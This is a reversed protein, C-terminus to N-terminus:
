GCPSWAVSRLAKRRESLMGGSTQMQSRLWIRRGALRIRVERHHSLVDSRQGIDECSTHSAGVASQDNGASM